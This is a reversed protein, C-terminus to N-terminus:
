EENTVKGVELIASQGPVIIAHFTEIDYMGLNAITFTAGVLEDLM